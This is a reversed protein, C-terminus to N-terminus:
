KIRRKYIKGEIDIAIAYAKKDNLLANIDEINYRASVTDNIGLLVNSPNSSQKSYGKAWKFHVKYGVGVYSIKVVRNGINTAEISYFQIGDNAGVGICTYFAVAIKKRFPIKAVRVSVVIAIVSLVISMLALIASVFGQNANCWAIFDEM